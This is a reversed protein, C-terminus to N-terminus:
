RLARCLPDGLLVYILFRRWPGMRNFEREVAEWYEPPPGAWVEVQPQAELVDGVACLLDFDDERTVPYERVVTELVLKVDVSRRPSM